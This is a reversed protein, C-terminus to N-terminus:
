RRAPAPVPPPPVTLLLRHGSWDTEPAAPNGGGAPPLASIPLSEGKRYLVIGIHTVGALQDPTLPTHDVWWQQGHVYADGVDQAYDAQKPFSGDARILHVAINYNLQTDHTSEWVLTLMGWGNQARTVKGARLILNPGFALHRVQAGSIDGALTQANASTEPRWFPYRSRVIIPILLCLLLVTDIVVAKLGPELFPDWFSREKGGPTELTKQLVARQGNSASPAIDGAAPAPTAAAAVPRKPAPKPWLSLMWSRFPREVVTWILHSVVLVLAFYVPFVIYRPMASYVQFKWAYERLLIQHVLYVSFSIEGLLVGLPASLLYSIWGWEAAMAFVLFAFALSVCGGQQLWTSAPEGLWSVHMAATGIVQSYYMNLLVLGFAAAEVLTGVVAGVRLKQGFQRWVLATFMGITFEFVRALPNIYVLSASVIQSPIAPNYVPLRWYLSLEIMLMVLGAAILMKWWWTRDWRHILFPFFLYFAFETSISWSVGNYSFFQSTYPFWSQLLSLNLAGLGIAQAWSHLNLRVFKHLVAIVLIFTALHAPWVRAFRAFLFRGRANWSDLSPYVYTLIFGSLVFFFSVAQFLLFPKMLASPPLMGVDPSHHVVIMAAAVFRLATLAHLRRVPSAAPSPAPVAM